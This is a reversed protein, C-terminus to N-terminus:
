KIFLFALVIALSSSIMDYPLLGGAIGRWAERPSTDTTFSVALSVAGHNVVFFVVVLALFAQLNLQITDFGVHGGLVRYVLGGLGVGLMYQATNFVARILSKRRVIVQSVLGTILAIAMPWPPAFLMAAALFPIFVVSSGVRATAIRPNPLFSSDSVIGLITFAILANWFSSDELSPVYWTTVLLLSLAAVGVGAWFLRFTWRDLNPQSSSM